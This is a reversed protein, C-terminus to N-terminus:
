GPLLRIQEPEGAKNANTAAFQVEVGPEIVLAKGGPVTIDGAVVYPSGTLTWTQNGLEGTEVPTAASAIGSLACTSLAATGLSAWFRERGGM